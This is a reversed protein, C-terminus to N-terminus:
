VAAAHGSSALLERALPIVETGYLEIARMSQEHPMPGNSYKLDFRDVGLTRVTQAVEATVPAIPAGATQWTWETVVAGDPDLLSAFVPESDFRPLCSWVVAGHRDVLASCQCNGILGMDELQM